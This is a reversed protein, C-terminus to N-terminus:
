HELTNLYKRTELSDRTFACISTNGESNLSDLLAIHLGFPINSLELTGSIDTLPDKPVSNILEVLKKFNPHTKILSKIEIM